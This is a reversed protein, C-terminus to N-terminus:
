NNAAGEAVAAAEIPPVEVRRAGVFARRWYADSFLPSVSVTRRRNPAHIFSDDGVYMGVHWGRRTRFFVLDGPELEEKGVSMGVKYQMPASTPLDVPFNTQYIYKVFGSCDFGTEPRTGGLRYRTGILSYATSLLQTECLPCNRPLDPPPPFVQAPPPLLNALQPWGTLEFPRFAPVPKRRVYASRRRTYAGRRAPAAKAAASSPTKKATVAKGSNGRAPAKAAPVSAPKSAPGAALVGCVWVALVIPIVYPRM